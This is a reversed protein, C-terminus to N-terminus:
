RLNGICEYEPLRFAHYKKKKLAELYFLCAMGITDLNMPSPIAYFIPNPFYRYDDADEKTRLVHQQQRCRRLKKNRYLKEQETIGILRGVGSPEKSEPHQEPKQSGVRAGLQDESPHLHQVDCRM